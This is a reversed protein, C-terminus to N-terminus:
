DLRGRDLEEMLVSLDISAFGSAMDGAGYSILVEDDVLWAGCPYITHPRDGFVEEPERPEMIFRPTVAVLEPERGMRVLAAFVKYRLTEAEVSHLIVLHEGRGGKYGHVLSSWGIKDEFPSAEMVIWSERAEIRAFGDGRPPWDVRSVLLYFRGTVDHIRHFAYVGSEAEVLFANKDSIVLQSREGRLAIYGRKAWSGGDEAAVVPYTRGPTKEGAFYFITRGTYVLHKVGGVYSLRPDEAGWFDAWVGPVIVPRAEVRELSDLSGDLLDELSVRLEGIISAYTYYGLEIRAYILADGGDVEIAPNFVAAVRRSPGRTLVVQEPRLFSRRRAMDVTEPKRAVLAEKLGRAAMLYGGLGRGKIM